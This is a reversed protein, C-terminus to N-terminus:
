GQQAWRYQCLTDTGKIQTWAALPGFCMQAESENLQELPCSTLQGLLEVCPQPLPPPSPPTRHCKLFFEKTDVVPWVLQESDPAGM